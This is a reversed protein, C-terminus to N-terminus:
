EDGIVTGLELFFVGIGKDDNGIPVTGSEGAGSFVADTCSDMAGYGKRRFSM